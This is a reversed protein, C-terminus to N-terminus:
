QSMTPTSRIMTSSMLGNHMTRTTRTTRWSRIARYDILVLKSIKPRSQYRVIRMAISVAMMMVMMVMMMATTNNHSQLRALLM